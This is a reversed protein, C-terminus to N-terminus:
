FSFLINNEEVYNQDHTGILQWIQLITDDETGVKITNRVESSEGEMLLPNSEQGFLKSSSPRQTMLPPYM